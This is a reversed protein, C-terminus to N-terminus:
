IAPVIPAATKVWAIRNNDCRGMECFLVFCSIFILVAGLFNKALNSAVFGLRDTQWSARIRGSGCEHTIQVGPLHWNTVKINTWATVDCCGKPRLEGIAVIENIKGLYIPEGSKDHKITAFAAHPLKLNVDICKKEGYNEISAFWCGEADTVYYPLADHLVFKVDGALSQAHSFREDYSKGDAPPNCEFFKTIQTRIREKHEEFFPKVTPHIKFPHCSVTAVLTKRRSILWHLGKLFYFLVTVGAAVPILWWLAGWNM